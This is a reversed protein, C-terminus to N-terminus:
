EAEKTLPRPPAEPSPVNDDAHEFRYIAVRQMEDHAAIVADAYMGLRMGIM